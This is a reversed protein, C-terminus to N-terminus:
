PSQLGESKRKAVMESHMGIANWLGEKPSRRRRVLLRWLNKLWACTTVSDFLLGIRAMGNM